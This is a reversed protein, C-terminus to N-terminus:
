DLEDLLPKLERELDPLDITVTDWVAELDVGMYDHILKDRMGAVQRWPIREAKKKTPESIHKSAEGIVELERMVAAQVLHNKLFGEHDLDEVYSRTRVVADLIHKM